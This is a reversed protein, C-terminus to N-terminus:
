VLVVQAQKVFEVFLQSNEAYDREPHWQVGITFPRKNHECAEIIGDDAYAAVQLDEGLKKVAQHHSTPVSIKEQGYIKFLNSAREVKVDHMTLEKKIRPHQVKSDPYESAIDQILTGGLVINMLQMGGCIGLIPLKTSHLSKRMFRLDFEERTPDILDIKRCVKEGYSEPSYDNGGVFVLGSVKQLIQDLDSDAMPPILVPLGGAALIAQFYDAKLSVERSEGAVIDLSIGIIPKM